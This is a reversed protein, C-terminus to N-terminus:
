LRRTLLADRYSRLLAQGRETPLTGLFAQVREPHLRWPLYHALRWGLGRDWAGRLEAPPDIMSEGFLREETIQLGLGFRALAEAAADRLRPDRFRADEMLAGLRPAPNPGGPFAAFRLYPGAGLLMDFAGQEGAVEARALLEEFATVTPDNLYANGLAARYERAKGPDSPAGRLLLALSEEATGGLRSRIKGFYQPWSYGPEERLIAWSRRPHRLAESSLARGFPLLGPLLALLLLAWAFARAGRGSSRRLWSVVGSGLVVACWWLPSLRNWYFPHEVAGIAFGSWFYLVLFLLLYAVMWRAGRSGRAALVLGAGVGGVLATPLLYHGLDGPFDFEGGYISELFAGLTESLEGGGGPAVSEGHIDFVGRGVHSAMWGLPLLGLATGVLGAVCARRGLISPNGLLIGVGVLLVAPGVQYNFYTGLGACCGLALAWRAERGEGEEGPVRALRDGLLFLGALFPLAQFHIGLNLLSALQMGEPAFVFLLAFVRAAAAGFYAGCLLMGLILGAVAFVLAVGKLALLNPGTLGFVLRDLLSTVFGGGEYPHYAWQHLPVELDLGMALAAAGKELEEGYFFVDSLALVTVGRVLVLAVAWALLTRFRIGKPAQATDM